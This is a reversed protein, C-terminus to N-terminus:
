DETEPETIVVTFTKEEYGPSTLVFTKPTEIVEDCKLWLIIDGDAGGFAKAETVDDAQLRYGNYSVGLIDSHGTTILIGVWKHSGQVPNSSEFATMASIDAVLTFIGDEYTISDVAAHNGALDSGETATSLKVAVGIWSDPIMLKADKLKILLANFDTKLGAVASATSAEQNKATLLGTVSAGEKIELTGGIVTKDGGQETYNKTNYGM